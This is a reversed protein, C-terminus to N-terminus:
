ELRSSFFRVFSVNISSRLLIMQDSTTDEPVSKIIMLHSKQIETRHVLSAMIRHWTLESPLTNPPATGEAFHEQEGADVDDSHQSIDDVIRIHLV